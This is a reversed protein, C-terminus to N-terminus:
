GALHLFRQMMVAVEARTAEAKPEVRNGENGQIIKNETAWRMADLAYGSVRGADAFGNLTEPSGPQAGAYRYLMTVLQERTIQGHPTSGDSVGNSVAWELGKSYWPEGTTDVGDLRALVTMLMARTMLGNPGFENTGSGNFIERRVTEDVASFFWDKDTVDTFLMGNGTVTVTTVESLKGDKETVARYTCGMTLEPGTYIMGNAESPQTGDTTFYINGGVTSTSLLVTSGNVMVSPAKLETTTGGNGNSVYEAFWASVYGEKGSSTVVQYWKASAQGGNSISEGEVETLIKVKTGKSMHTVVSSNTNPESRLRVENGTIKGNYEPDPDESGGGYILEYTSDKGSYGLSSLYSAVQSASAYGENEMSNDVPIPAGDEGYAVGDSGIQYGDVQTDVDYQYDTYHYMAGNMSYWGNTPYRLGNDFLHWANWSSNESIAQRRMNVGYTSNDVAEGNGIYIGIHGYIGTEPDRYDPATVALGHIRPIGYLEDLDGNFACNYTVQSTAGGAPASMKNDTFYAYLLGACDSQRTMNGNEDKVQEGKGAGAYLWGEVYAKIGHEAFHLVSGIEAAQANLTLGPLAYGTVCLVLAAALLRM